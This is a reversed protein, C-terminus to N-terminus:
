RGGGIGQALGRVVAPLAPVDVGLATALRAVDDYLLAVRGALTGLPGLLGDDGGAARALELAQVWTIIADRAADLAAGVPEWRAREARLAELRAAVPQGETEAEVRTLSARRAVDIEGGAAAHVSTSILAASANSELVTRGCGALVLAVLVVAAGLSALDRM